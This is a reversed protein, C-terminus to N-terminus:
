IQNCTDILKPLVYQWGQQCLECRKKGDKIKTFDGQEIQLDTGESAPTLIFHLESTTKPYEKTAKHFIIFALHSYPKYLLVQAEVHAIWNGKDTKQKWVAEGGVNWQSHLQCDYMYKQTLEPETLVRWVKDPSKLLQASVRAWLSNKADNMSIFM